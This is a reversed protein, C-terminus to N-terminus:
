DLASFKVYFHFFLYFPSILLMATIIPPEEDAYYSAPRRIFAEENQHYGCPLARPCCGIPQEGEGLVGMSM